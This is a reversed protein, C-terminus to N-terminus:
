SRASSAPSSTVKTTLRLTLTELTQTTPQANQPNPTPLRM